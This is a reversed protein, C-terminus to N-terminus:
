GVAELRVVPIVRTTRRQYNDYDPWVGVFRPWLRAKEEESTQSARVRLKERGVEITAEPNAQLNLWWDPDRPSGGFSAVIYYRGDDELYLLPKTICRGSRRGRTTLLLMDVGRMRGGIRGGSWRFLWIHVQTFCRHLMRKTSPSFKM